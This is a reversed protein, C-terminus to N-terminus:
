SGQQLRVQIQPHPPLRRLRRLLSRYRLCRLEDCTPDEYEDQFAKSYTLVESDDLFRGNSVAKECSHKIFNFPCSILTLQVLSEMDRNISVTASGVQSGADLKSSGAMMSSYSRRTPMLSAESSSRMCSHFQQSLQHRYACSETMRRVFHRSQAKACRCPLAARGLHGHQRAASLMAKDPPAQNASPLRGGDGDRLYTLPPVFTWFRM